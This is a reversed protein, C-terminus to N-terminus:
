TSWGRREALWASCAHAYWHRHSKLHPSGPIEPKLTCMLFMGALIALYSDIYDQPVADCVALSQVYHEADLGDGYISVLLSVSDVWGAATCLYNWDCLLADHTGALLVNDDRVDGHCLASGALAEPLLDVLYSIESEHRRDGSLEWYHPWGNSVVGPDDSLKGLVGEPVTNEALRGLMALARDADPLQWPRRVAAHPVAQYCLVVVDGTVATSLLEPTWPGSGPNTVQRLTTQATIEQQYAARLWPEHSGWAAKVFRTEGDSCTALGAFGPTFGGGTVSIEHITHGITAEIVHRVADPVDAWHPRQATRGHPVAPPLTAIWPSTRVVM